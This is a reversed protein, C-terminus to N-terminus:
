EDLESKLLKEWLRYAKATLHIGDTTFEKRLGQQREDLFHPYFNVYTFNERNMQM